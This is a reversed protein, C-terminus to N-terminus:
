GLLEWAAMGRAMARDVILKMTSPQTATLRNMMSEQFNV